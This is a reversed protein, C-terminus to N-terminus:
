KIYLCFCKGAREQIELYLLSEKSSAKSGGKEPLKSECSDAVMGITSLILMPSYLSEGEGGMSNLRM